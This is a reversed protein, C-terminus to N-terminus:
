LSNFGRDLEIYALALEIAAPSIGDYIFSGERKDLDSPVVDLMRQKIVDETQNEYM